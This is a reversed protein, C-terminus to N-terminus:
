WILQGRRPRTYDGPNWRMVVRRDLPQGYRDTLTSGGRTAENIIVVNLDMTDPDFGFEAQTSTDYVVAWETGDFYEPYPGIIQLSTTSGIIYTGEFPDDKLSNFLAEDYPANLFYGTFFDESDQTPYPEDPDNVFNLTPWRTGLLINLNGFEDWRMPDNAGQGLLAFGDLQVDLRKSPNSEGAGAMKYFPQRLDSASGSGVQRRVLPTSQYPMVFEGRAHRTAHDTGYRARFLGSFTVTRNDVDVVATMFQIWERGVLLRNLTEDVYLQDITAATFTGAPVNRCFEVVFSADQTTFPTTTFPPPTLLRGWFLSSPLTTGFQTTDGSAIGILDTTDFESLVDTLGSYVSSYAVLAEPTMVHVSIPFPSDTPAARELGPTDVGPTPGLTVQEGYKGVGDVSLELALKYDAGITVKNVRMGAHVSVTDAPTAAMYKPPIEIKAKAEADEIGKIALFEALRVMSQDDATLTFTFTETTPKNVVEDPLRFTQTWEEGDLNESIYNVMVTKALNEESSKEFQFPEKLDDSSVTVLSSTQSLLFNVRDDVFSRFQFAVALEGVIDAATLKAGSRYGIVPTSALSSTSVDYLQLGSRIALDDVIESLAEDEPTVRSVFVRSVLDASNVYTISNAKGDYFQKTSTKLGVGVTDVAAIIGTSLTLSYVISDSGIFAVHTFVGARMDITGSPMNGFETEWLVGNVPSWNLIRDDLFILLSQTIPCPMVGLIVPASGIAIVTETPTWLTALADTSSYVSENVVLNTGDETLLFLSNSVSSITPEEETGVYSLFAAWKAPVALTQVLELTSDIDSIEYVRSETTGDMGVLYSAQFNKNDLMTVVSFYDHAITVSTLETGNNFDHVRVETGDSAIANPLESVAVVDALINFSVEEMSDYDLVVVSAGDKVFVRRAPIDVKLIDYDTYEQSQLTVPEETVSRAVEIKWEPFGALSNLNINTFYICAMDRYAPVRGFGEVLAIDPVVKQAPSGQYFAITVGPPVEVTTTTKDYILVSDLWVRSVGDLQGACLGLQMDIYTAANFTTTRVLSGNEYSMITSQSQVEREASLWILNGPLYTKGYVLEIPIGYMSNTVTLDADHLAKLVDRVTVPAGPPKPPKGFGGNDIIPGPCQLRPCHCSATNVEGSLSYALEALCKEYNGQCEASCLLVVSQDAGLVPPCNCAAQQDDCLKTGNEELDRLDQEHQELCRRKAEDGRPFMEPTYDFQLDAVNQPGPDNNCNPGVGLQKCGHYAEPKCNAM